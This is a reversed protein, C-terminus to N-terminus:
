RIVSAGNPPDGFFTSATKLVRIRAERSLPRLADIIKVLACQVHDGTLEADRPKKESDPTHIIPLDEVRDTMVESIGGVSLRLPATRRAEEMNRLFM